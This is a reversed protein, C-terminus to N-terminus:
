FGNIGALVSGSLFGVRHLEVRTALAKALLMEQLWKVSFRWWPNCVSRM